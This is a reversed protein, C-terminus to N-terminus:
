TDGTPLTFPPISPLTPGILSPDFAGASIFDDLNLGKPYIESEDSMYVGGKGRVFKNVMHSTCVIFYCILLNEFQM